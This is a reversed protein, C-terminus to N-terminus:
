CSLWCVSPQLSTKLDKSHLCLDSEREWLRVAAPFRGSKLVKPLTGSPLSDHKQLRKMLRTVHKCCMTARIKKREGKRDSSRAPQWASDRCLWGGVGGGRCVPIHIHICPWTSCCLLGEWLRSSLSFKFFVPVAMCLLLGFLVASTSNKSNLLLFDLQSQCSGAQM